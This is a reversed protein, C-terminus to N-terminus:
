AVVGMAVGMVVGVLHSGSLDQKLRVKEFELPGKYHSSPKYQPLPVHVGCTIVLPLVYLLYMYTGEM